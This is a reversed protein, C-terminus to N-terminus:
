VLSFSLPSLYLLCKLPPTSLQILPFLPGLYILKLSIHSLFWHTINISVPVILPLTPKSHHHCHVTYLVHHSTHPHSTCTRCTTIKLSHIKLKTKIPTSYVHLLNKWRRTCLELFKLLFVCEHLWYWLCSLFLETGRFIGWAGKHDDGKGWRREKYSSIKKM